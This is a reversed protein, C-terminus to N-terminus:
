NILHHFVLLSEQNQADEQESQALEEFVRNLNESINDTKM